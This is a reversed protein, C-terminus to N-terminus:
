ETRWVRVGINLKHEGYSEVIRAEFRREPRKSHQYTILAKMRHLYVALSKPTPGSSGVALRSGAAAVFFSDGVEMVRWPYKYRDYRQEGEPMPVGSGVPFDPYRM